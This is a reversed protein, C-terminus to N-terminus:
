QKNIPYKHHILKVKTPEVPGVSWIKGMIVAESLYKMISPTGADTESITFYGGERRFHNLSGGGEGFFARGKKVLLNQPAISIVEPSFIM